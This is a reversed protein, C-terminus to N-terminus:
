LLGVCECIARSESSNVIWLQLIKNVNGHDETKCLARLCGGLLSREVQQGVPKGDVEFSNALGQMNFSVKM